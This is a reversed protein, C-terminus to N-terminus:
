RGRSWARFSPRYSHNPRKYNGHKYCTYYYFTTAAEKWCRRLHRADRRTTTITPRSLIFVERRSIISAMSQTGAILKRSSKKSRTYYHAWLKSTYSSIQSVLTPRWADLMVVEHICWRSLSPICHSWRYWIVFPIHLTFRSSQSPCSHLLFFM